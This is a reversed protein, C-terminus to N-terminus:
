VLRERRGRQDGWRGGGVRPDGWGGNLPGFTLQDDPVTRKHVTVDLDVGVEQALETFQTITASEDAARSDIRSIEQSLDVLTDLVGDSNEALRIETEDDRWKYTIEAVRFDRDVRQDPVTVPTVDGPTVDFAGWTTLTGTQITSRDTLIQRAKQEAAEETTIEPYTKTEGIVVPRPRGLEEALEKQSARDHVSVAGTNQGEGYYLTVKNVEHKGDESFNAEAYEGASFSRPSDNEVADQARFYFVGDDTAGFDEDISKSALEAIVEDLREGKWDREVTEDNAVEVYDDDWDLPTLDIVLDELVERITADSFSQFVRRKRLWFDHSLVELTTADRESETNIVFGGFRRSFHVDGDRKVDFEVPTPRPYAEPKGGDPDDLVATAQRAFRNYADTVEVDLLSSDGADMEYRVVARDDGVSEGAALASIEADDLARHWIGVPGLEGGFHDSPGKSGDFSESESGTGLYGYRTAGSGFTEGVSFTADATGDVFLTVDGADFRAACHVWEGTNVDTGGSLDQITDNSSDYVNFTLRDATGSSGIGLRWYESRDFSAVVCDDATTRVWASVTLADHADEYAVNRVAAYDGAASDFALAYAPAVAEPGDRRWRAGRNEAHRDSAAAPRNAGSDDRIETPVARLLNWEVGM